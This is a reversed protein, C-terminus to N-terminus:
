YYNSSKKNFLLLLMLENRVKLIGVSNDSTVIHLVAGVILCRSVHFSKKLSVNRMPWLSTVNQKLDTEVNLRIFATIGLVESLVEGVDAFSVTIVRREVATM